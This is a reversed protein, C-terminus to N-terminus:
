KTTARGRTACAAPKEKKKMIGLLTKKLKYKYILNM